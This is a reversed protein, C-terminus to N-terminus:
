SAEAMVACKARLDFLETATPLQQTAAKLRAVEERLEQIESDNSRECASFLQLSALLFLTIPKM